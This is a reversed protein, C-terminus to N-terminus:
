HVGQKEFEKLSKTLEKANLKISIKNEFLCRTFKKIIEEINDDVQAEDISRSVIYAIAQSSVMASINFLAQIDTIKREKDSLITECMRKMLYGFVEQALLNTKCSKTM